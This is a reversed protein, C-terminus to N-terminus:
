GERAEPTLTRVPLGPACPAAASRSGQVDTRGAQPREAGPPHSPGPERPPPRAARFSLRQPGAILHARQDRPSCSLRPSLTSHRRKRAGCPMATEVRCSLHWGLSPRGHRESAAESAEKQLVVGKRAACVEPLPCERGGLQGHPQPSRSAGAARQGPGARLRPSTAESGRAARSFHPEAVRVTQTYVSQRKVSSANVPDQAVIQAAAVAGLAAGRGGPPCVSVLSM